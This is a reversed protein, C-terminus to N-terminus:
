RIKKMEQWNSGSKLEATLPVHLKAAQQMKQKILPALRSVESEKIEFILEDHVQLLIHASYDQLLKYIEVMAFKIIDASGGQIVTNVAAREAARQLHINSYKFEPFYRIRGSLTKVFGDKKAKKLTEDIWKKVSSYTEFYHDIYEKAQAHPIKLLRALGIGTQGYVIGFNIAKATRRMDSSVLAPMVEFVEAATKTHIDEDNKFATILSEDRSEHALVRLDIQSYDASLLKCGKKATFCERLQANLPINQLNPNISSLRGTATKTQDFYTHVRKTKADAMSLLNDAYTSKLKVAQRFKIIQKAIDHKQSLESLVDEDTSFGTKTKKVPTIGMKEFLLEALQKPSNVNIREGAKQNIEDQLKKIEQELQKSLNKLKTTNVEIGESEMAALISLVPLETKHYLDSLGKERLKKALIEKLKFVFRNQVSLLSEDDAPNVVENLHQLVIAAFDYGAASPNLLYCALKLDFANIILSQKLKLGLKYITKKLDYSIKIINKNELLKCLTDKEEQTISNIQTCGFTNPNEGALFLDGKSQMFFSKSKQLKALIKKLPKSKFNQTSIKEPEVMSALSKFGYDKIIKIIASQEVPKLKLDDLDLKLGIDTKLTVLEKSLLAQAEDATIKAALTKTISKEGGKKAAATINELTSFEQLLKAATKAGIGRIGPINDVSDGVIALYDIIQEPKVGFKEKVFDAGKLDDKGHSILVKDSVLQYSDKDSTVLVVNLKKSEAKKALFALLDDAEYGEKAILPLKLTKILRRTEIIQEVLAEDTEPRNAKYDSFLEHRFTKAPTDFCVALFGPNKKLINLIFRTFGYLAGVERGKSTLRPLAHYARHIFSHADIVFLTNKSKNESLM